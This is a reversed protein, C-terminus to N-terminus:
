PRAVPAEPEAMTFMDDAFDWTRLVGPELRLVVGGLSSGLYRDPEDDPHYRHALRRGIPWFDDTSLHAMGRVEIGRYPLGHDFVTMSARPDRRLLEIKPDGAPVIATFGGGAWEHWIPTILISGDRRHLALAACRPLALLDGLEEVRLGRRM